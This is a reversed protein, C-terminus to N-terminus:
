GKATILETLLSQRIPICASGLCVGARAIYIEGHVGAPVLRLCEHLVYVQYNPLPIGATLFNNHHATSIADVLM